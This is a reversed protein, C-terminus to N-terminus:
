YARLRPAIHGFHPQWGLGSGIKGLDALAKAGGAPAKPADTPGCIKLVTWMGSSPRSEHMTLAALRSSTRRRNSFRM